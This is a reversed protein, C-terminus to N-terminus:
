VMIVFITRTWKTSQTTKMGHGKKPDIFGKPEEIYVEEELIGNLFTSKVYIQYVKFRKHAAHALLMKVGELRAIPSFTEGYDIGEEQVYGKCVIM